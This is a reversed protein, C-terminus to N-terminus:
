LGIMDVLDQVRYRVYQGEENAGRWVASSYRGESAIWDVALLGSLVVISLLLGRM